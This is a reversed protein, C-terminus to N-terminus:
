TISHQSAPMAELGTDFGRVLKAGQLVQGSYRETPQVHHAVNPVLDGM